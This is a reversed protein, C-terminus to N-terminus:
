IVSMTRTKTLSKTDWICMSLLAQYYTVFNGTFSTFFHTRLSPKELITTIANFCVFLLLLLFFFFCFL